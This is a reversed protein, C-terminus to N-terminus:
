RVIIPDCLMQLGSQQQASVGTVLPGQQMLQVGNNSSSVDAASLLSSVSDIGLQKALTLWWVPLATGDKQLPLSGALLAATAFGSPQDGLAEKLLQFVSKAPPFDVVEVADDEQVMVVGPIHTSASGPSSRPISDRIGGLPTAKKEGKKAKYHHGAAHGHYYLASLM